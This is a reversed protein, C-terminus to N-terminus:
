TLYCICIHIHFRVEKQCFYDNFYEFYTKMHEFFQSFTTLLTIYVIIAPLSLYHSISSIQIGKHMNLTTIDSYQFSWGKLLLKMAGTTSEHLQWLASITVSNLVNFYFILYPINQVLRKCWTETLYLSIQQWQDWFISNGWTKSLMLYCPILWSGWFRVYWNDNRTLCRLTM